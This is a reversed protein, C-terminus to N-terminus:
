YALENLPLIDAQSTDFTSNNEYAKEPADDNLRSKDMHFTELAVSNIPINELALANLLFKHVQPCSRFALAAGVPLKVLPINVFEAHRSVLSGFIVFRLLPGKQLSQVTYHIELTFHPSVFTGNFLSYGGGWFFNM